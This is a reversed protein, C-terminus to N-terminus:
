GDIPGNLAMEAEAALRLKIAKKASAFNAVSTLVRQREVDTLPLASGVM